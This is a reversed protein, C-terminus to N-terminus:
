ATLQQALHKVVLCDIEGSKRLVKRLFEYATKKPKRQTIASLNERNEQGPNM